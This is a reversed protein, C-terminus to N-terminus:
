QTQERELTVCNALLAAEQVDWIQHRWLKPSATHKSAEVRWLQLWGTRGSADHTRPAIASLASKVREMWNHRKWRVCTITAVMEKQPKRQEFGFVSGLKPWRLLARRVLCLFFTPHCQAAQGQSGTSCQGSSGLLAEAFANHRKHRGSFGILHRVFREQRASPSTGRRLCKHVKHPGRDHKAASVRYVELSQQAIARARRADALPWTPGVMRAPAVMLWKKFHALEPNLLLVPPSRPKTIAEKRAQIEEVAAALGTSLLHWDIDRGVYESACTGKTRDPTKFVRGAESFCDLRQALPPPTRM